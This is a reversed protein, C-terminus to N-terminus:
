EAYRLPASMVPLGALWGPKRVLIAVPGVDVPAIKITYSGLTETVTLPALNAVAQVQLPWGALLTMHSPKTDNEVWRLIFGEPSPEAVVAQLTLLRLPSGALAVYGDPEPAGAPRYMPLRYATVPEAQAAEYPPFNRRSRYLSLAREAALGAEITAGTLRRQPEQCLTAAISLLAASRRAIAPDVGWIRWSSWDLRWDVSTFLSNPDSAGGGALLQSQMLIAHAAALDLGDGSALYPLKQGTLPEPEYRVAVMYDHLAGEVAEAVFVDRAALLNTFALEVISPLDFPSVSALLDGAKGVGVARGSPIRHAPFQMVIRPETAYAVPGDILDAEPVMRTGSLIKVPYGGAKALLAGVPLVAGMRNFTWVAVLGGPEERVDLSVLEPAIGSWFNEHSRIAQCLEGLDAVSSGKMPRQGIPLSVKTWGEYRTTSRIRWDGARGTIMLQVPKEFSLLVPAQRDQFSVMIWRSEATPNGRDVTGEAWSLFPSALSAVKLDVGLPFYIEFGLGALNTRVRSPAGAFDPGGFICSQRSVARVNFKDIPRPFRFTDGPVGAVRFGDVTFLFGPAM